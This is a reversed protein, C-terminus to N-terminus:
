RQRQPTQQQQQAYMAEEAGSGEIIMTGGESESSEQELEDALDGAFAITKEAEEEQQAAREEELAFDLPQAEDEEYFPDDKSPFKDEGTPYDKKQNRASEEDFINPNDIIVEHCPEKESQDDLLSYTADRSDTCVGILRLFYSANQATTDSNSPYNNTPQSTMFKQIGGLIQAKQPDKKTDVQQGGVRVKNSNVYPVKTKTKKTNRQSRRSQSSTKDIKSSTEVSETAM